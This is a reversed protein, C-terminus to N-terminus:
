VFILGSIVTASFYARMISLNLPDLRRRPSKPNYIMVICKIYISTTRSYLYPMARYVHTGVFFVELTCNTTVKSSETNSQAFKKQLKKELGLTSLTFSSPNEHEYSTSESGFFCLALLGKKKKLFLKNNEANTIAAM